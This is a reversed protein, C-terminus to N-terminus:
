PLAGGVAALQEPTDVSTFMVAPDGFAALVDDCVFETGPVADALAIAQREGQSLLRRCVSLAEAPYCACLPERWAEEGHVPVVARAGLAARRALEHLLAAPVFPMDWALVLVARGRAAALGAEIGALPGLGPRDDTVIQVGPFWSAAGPDNAVIVQPSTAEQLAHLAHDAIRRGDLV